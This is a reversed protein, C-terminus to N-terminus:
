LKIGKGYSLKKSWHSTYNRQTQKQAGKKPRTHEYGAM